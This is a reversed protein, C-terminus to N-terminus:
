KHGNPMVNVKQRNLVLPFGVTSLNQLKAIIQELQNKAGFLIQPCIEVIEDDRTETIGL